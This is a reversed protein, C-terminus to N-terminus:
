HHGVKEVESHLRAQEKRASEQIKELKQQLLRKEEEETSLCLELEM